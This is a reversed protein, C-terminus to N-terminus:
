FWWRLVIEAIVVACLGTLVGVLGPRPNWKYRWKWRRRAQIELESGQKVREELTM